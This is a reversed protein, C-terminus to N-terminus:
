SKNASGAVSEYIWNKKAYQNVSELMGNPKDGSRIADRIDRAAVAKFNSVLVHTEPPEVPLNALLQFAHREDKEGRVAVVLGVKKLLAKVNPWVSIHSLVDTGILMLLQADPYKQILRPLSTGVTFQKDPLELVGLKPYAKIALNIMAIRHSQHTVDGKYRPRPEPVFVVEDLGATELSQLAFSIHGKHM